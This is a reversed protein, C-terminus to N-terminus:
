EPSWVREMRRDTAPSGGFIPLIIEVRDGDALVRAPLRGSPYYQNNVEVLVHAAPMGEQELLQALTLGEQVVKDEGNVMLRM